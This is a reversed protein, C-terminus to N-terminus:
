KVVVKRGNVIYIGKPLGSLSAGVYQGNLNYVRSVVPRPEATAFRSIGTTQSYTFSLRLLGMDETQESGDAYALTANGGSFTIKKVSKEVALGNVTVTQKGEAWVGFCCASMTVALMLRLQKM